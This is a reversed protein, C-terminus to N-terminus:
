KKGKTINGEKQITREKNKEKRALKKLNKMKRRIKGERQIMREKNKEKREREKLNKM